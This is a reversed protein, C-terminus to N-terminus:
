VVCGLRGGETKCLAGWYAGKLRVCCVGTKGRETKCLVGWDAGKLRVYLM